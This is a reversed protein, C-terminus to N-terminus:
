LLSDLRVTIQKMQYILGPTRDYAWGHYNDRMLILTARINQQNRSEWSLVVKAVEEEMKNIHEQDKYINTLIGLDALPIKAEIDRQRALQWAIDNFDRYTIGYPAIRKLDFVANKLIEGQIKPDEIASDLTALVKKQYEYQESAKKQNEILETRLDLLLQKTQNNEHMKNIIESVILALLVSFIILLSEGLYDQWDRVIIVKPLHHKSHTAPEVAQPAPATSEEM